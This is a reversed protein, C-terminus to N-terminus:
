LHVPGRNHSRYGCDPRAPREAGIAGEMGAPYDVGPENINNPNQSEDTTSGTLQNLMGGPARGYMVATSGPQGPISTSCGNDILYPCNSVVPPTPTGYLVVRLNANGEAHVPSALGALLAIIFVRMM